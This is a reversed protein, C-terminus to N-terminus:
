GIKKPIGSVKVPSFIRTELISSFLLTCDGGTFGRRNATIEIYKEDQVAKMPYIIGNEPYHWELGGCTLDIASEPVLGSREIGIKISEAKDDIFARAVRYRRGVATREHNIKYIWVNGFIKHVRFRGLADIMPRMQPGESVRVTNYNIVVYQFDGGKIRAALDERRAGLLRADDPNNLDDKILISCNIYQCKLGYRFRPIIGSLCYIQATYDYVFVERLGNIKLYRAAALVDRDNQAYYMLPNVIKTIALMSSIPNQNLTLVLCSLVVPLRWINRDAQLRRDAVALACCVLAAVINGTASLRQSLVIAAAILVYFVERNIRMLFVTAGIVLVPVLEIFYHPYFYGGIWVSMLACAAWILLYLDFDQPVGGADVRTGADAWRRRPWDLMFGFLGMWLIASQRFIPIGYRAAFAYNKHLLHSHIRRIFASALFNDSTGLHVTCLWIMGIPVLFVLFQKSVM